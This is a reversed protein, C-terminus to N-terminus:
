APQARTGDDDPSAARSQDRAAHAAEVNGRIIATTPHDPGLIRQRDTLTQEYLTIAQDLRGASQYAGALNNRSGLTNPHDPGLDQAAITFARHHYPLATDPRGHLDLYSGTRDCLWSM